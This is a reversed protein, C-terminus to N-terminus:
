LIASIPDREEAWAVSASPVGQPYIAVKLVGDQQHSFVDYADKLDGVGRFVVAKMKQM